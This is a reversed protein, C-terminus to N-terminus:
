TIIKNIIAKIFTHLNEKQYDRLDDGGEITYVRFQTIMMKRYNDILDKTIGKNSFFAEEFSEYIQDLYGQSNKLTKTGHTMIAKITIAQLRKLFMQWIKQKFAEAEDATAFDDRM